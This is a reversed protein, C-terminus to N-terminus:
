KKLRMFAQQLNKLCEQRVKEDCVFNHIVENELETYVLKLREEKSLQQEPNVPIKKFEREFYEITGFLTTVM